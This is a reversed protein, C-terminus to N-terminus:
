RDAGAAGPRVACNAQGRRQTTALRATPHLDDAFVAGSVDTQGAASATCPAGAPHTPYPHATTGALAAVGPRFDVPWASLAAGEDGHPWRQRQPLHRSIGHHLLGRCDAAADALAPQDVAQWLPNRHKELVHPSLEPM